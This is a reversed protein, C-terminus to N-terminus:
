PWNGLPDAQFRPDLPFEEYGYQQSQTFGPPTATVNSGAYWLTNTNLAQAVSTSSALSACTGDVQQIEYLTLTGNNTPAPKPTGVSLWTNIARTNEVLWEDVVVQPVNNSTRLENFAQVCPVETTANLTAIRYDGNTEWTPVTVSPFTPLTPAKLFQTGGNLTVNDHITAQTTGGATNSGIVLLYHGNPATFLFAGNPNTTGEPMPTAGAVWPALGINVGILPNGTADDVVTGSALTSGPPPTTLCLLPGTCPTPSATPPTGGGSSGGGGGCAALLASLSIAAAVLRRRRVCGHTM